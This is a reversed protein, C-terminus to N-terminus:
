STLAMSKGAPVLLVNLQRDDITGLDVVAINNRFRLELAVSINLRYIPM